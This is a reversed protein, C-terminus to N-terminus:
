KASEFLVSHEKIIKLYVPECIVFSVIFHATSLSHYFAFDTTVKILDQM